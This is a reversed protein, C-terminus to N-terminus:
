DVSYERVYPPFWDVYPLPLNSEAALEDRRAKMKQYMVSIDDHYFEPNKHLFSKFARRISKIPKGGVNGNWVTRIQKFDEMEMQDIRAPKYRHPEQDHAEMLGEWNKFKTQALVSEMWPHNFIACYTEEPNWDNIRAFQRALFATGNQCQEADWEEEQPDSM